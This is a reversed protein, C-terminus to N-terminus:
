KLFVNTGRWDPLGLVGPIVCNSPVGGFFSKVLVSIVSSNDEGGERNALSTLSNAVKSPNDFNERLKEEIQEDNAMTTLGDSCLVFHDGTRMEVTKVVPFVKSPSGLYNDALSNKDNHQDKSIRSLEGNRFMYARSDGVYSFYATNGDMLMVVATSGM